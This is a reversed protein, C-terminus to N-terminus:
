PEPKAFPEPKPHPDLSPSLTLTFALTLLSHASRIAKMMVAKSTLNGMAAQREGEFNYM